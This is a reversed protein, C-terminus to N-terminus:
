AGPSSAPAGEPKPAAARAARAERSTIGAAPRGTAKRALAQEALQVVLQGYSLGISSAGDALAAQPSLDPNANVELIFLEGAPTVRFDVRGSDRLGLLRYARLALGDLQEGLEPTVVARERFATHQFDVSGVHWKADYTVINWAAHDRPMFVFESPPLARPEPAELIGVTLERGEVYQEVMVPPGYRELLVGVRKRLQARTSVVSGQDIGVSADQSAAKVIVPWRLRGPGIASKLALASDPPRPADVVLFGPTPLGAAHLVYKSMPKSRALAIALAPSGTFPVGLWELLAAVSVETIADDAQGLGEFLNFVVDPRHRCVGEVLAAPDRGVALLAVDLGARRLAACVHETTYLIERESEADPHSDPLLPQNHLVLVHTALIWRRGEVALEDWLGAAGAVPQHPAGDSASRAQTLDGM